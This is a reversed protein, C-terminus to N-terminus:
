KDKEPKCTKQSKSSQLDMGEMLGTTILSASVSERDGDATFLPLLCFLEEDKSPKPALNRNKCIVTPPRRDVDESSHEGDSGDCRDWLKPDVTGKCNQTLVSLYTSINLTPLVM